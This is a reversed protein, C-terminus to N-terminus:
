HVGQGSKPLLGKAVEVLGGVECSSLGLAMWRRLDVDSPSADRGAM